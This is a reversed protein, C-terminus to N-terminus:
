PTLTLTLTLTLTITLSLYPYPCHYPYPYRYRYSPLPLPLPLLSPLPLPLPLPLLTLPYSPLLTLPYSPLLTLTLAQCNRYLGFHKALEEAIEEVSTQHSFSRSEKTDMGEIYQLLLAKTPLELLFEECLLNTFGSLLM